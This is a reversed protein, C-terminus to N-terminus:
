KIMGWDTNRLLKTSLVTISKKGINLNIKSSGAITEAPDLSYDEELPVSENYFYRYLNGISSESKIIIGANKNQGSQNLIIFVLNGDPNRLSIMSVSTDAESPNTKLVSAYKAIFRTFMAFGYYATNEPIVKKLYEKKGIDWTRVLQWQGDM